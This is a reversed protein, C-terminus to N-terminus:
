LTSSLEPCGRLLFDLNAKAFISCNSIYNWTYIIVGAFCGKKVSMVQSGAAAHGM